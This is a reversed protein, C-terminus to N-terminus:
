RSKEKGYCQRSCVPCDYTAYRGDRQTDHLVVEKQLCEFVTGCTCDFTWTREEPITGRKIIKM